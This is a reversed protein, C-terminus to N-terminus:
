FGCRARISIIDHQLHFKQALEEFTMRYKRNLGRFIEVVLDYYFDGIGLITLIHDYSYSYVRNLEVICELEIKAMDEGLKQLQMIAYAEMFSRGRRMMLDIVTAIMVDRQRKYHITLAKAAKKYGCFTRDCLDGLVFVVTEEPNNRDALYRAKDEALVVSFKEGNKMLRKYKGRAGAGIITLFDARTLTNGSEAMIVAVGGCTGEYLYSYSNYAYDDPTSPALQHVYAVADTLSESPIRQTIYDGRFPYGFPANDGAYESAYANTVASIYRDISKKDVGKVIFHASADLVCYAILVVDEGACDQLIDIFLQKQKKKAFADFGSISDLAVKVILGKGRELISDM